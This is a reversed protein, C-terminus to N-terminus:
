DRESEIIFEHLLKVYVFKEVEWRTIGLEEPWRASLEVIGGGYGVLCYEFYVRRNGGDTRGYRFDLM